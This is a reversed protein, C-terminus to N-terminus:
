RDWGCSQSLLCLGTPHLAVEWTLSTDGLGGLSSMVSLCLASSGDLRGPPSLLQAGGWRSPEDDGACRSSPSGAGSFAPRTQGVCVPLKSICWPGCTLSGVRAGGIGEQWVEPSGVLAWVQQPTM